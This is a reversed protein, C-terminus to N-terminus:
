SPRVEILYKDLKEGLKKPSVYTEAETGPLVGERELFELQKGTANEIKYIWKQGKSAPTTVVPDAPAPEDATSTDIYPGTDVIPAAQRPAVDLADQMEERSYFGRIIDAGMNRALTSVARAYLMQKPMRKWNDKDALGMRIADDWTFSFEEQWEGRVGRLACVKDTWELTEFRMGRNLCVAKLGAADVTPKGQVVNVSQLSQLPSLGIEQGYLIATLVAEPTKFAQPILGSKLLTSAMALKTQLGNAYSELTPLNNDSM